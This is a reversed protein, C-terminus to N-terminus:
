SCRRCYAVLKGENLQLDSEDPLGQKLPDHFRGCSPSGNFDSAVRTSRTTNEWSAGMSFPLLVNPSAPRGHFSGKASPIQGPYDFDRLVFGDKDRGVDRIRRWCAGDGVSDM